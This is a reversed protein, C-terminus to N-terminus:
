SSRETQSQPPDPNIDSRGMKKRALPTARSCCLLTLVIVIQPNRPIQTSSKMATRDFANKSM